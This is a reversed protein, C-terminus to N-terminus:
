RAPTRAVLEALPSREGILGALERYPVLVEQLGDAYPAAQYPDFLIYVGQGTVVWRRYNDRTPATGRAIWSADPPSAVQRAVAEACYRAIVDLYAAGPVFLDGLDLRRDGRLDYTFTFAEHQPHAAGSFYTDAEFKLSILRPGSLGVVFDVDLSSPTRSGPAVHRKFQSAKRRVLAVVEANFKGHQAEVPVVIQPYRIEIAYEPKRGREALVRSVLRVGSGPDDRTADVPTPGWPVLCMGLGLALARARRHCGASWETVDVRPGRWSLM